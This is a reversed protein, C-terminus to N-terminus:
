KINLRCMNSRNCFAISYNSYHYNSQCHFIPVSPDVPNLYFVIWNDTRSVIWYLEYFSSRNNRDLSWTSKSDISGLNAIITTFSSHSENPSDFLEISVTM